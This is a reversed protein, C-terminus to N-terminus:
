LFKIEHLNNYTVDDILHDAFDMASMVAGVVPDMEVRVFSAYPAVKRVEREIAEIMHLSKSKSFVSGGLVVDFTDQEMHLRRILANAANGFETGEQELIQVAVADGETAAEFILKGLDKPLQYRGYLVDEYLPEVAEYGTMDLVMKTLLTSPGRGDFARVVSRFAHTNLDTGSGHADGFLYGFGGYDQEENKSNRAASNWGTGSIIVVGSSQKTGARMAIMTDCVIKFRKFKLASIMPNLIEYDPQRDAGALGFCAFEIEDKTLSADALAQECATRINREAAEKGCQHNGNGLVIGQGLVKGTEDVILAHVKTGGADVGLFRKM